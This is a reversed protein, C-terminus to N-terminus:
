AGEKFVVWKGAIWEIGKPSFKCDIFAHGNAEGGSVYFRKAELHQAYATWSGSLKYMVGTDRLFERFERENAKLMKAVERFTKNGTSEIFRDVFEVKPAQAELQFAQDAALQLAQAMTQPLLPQNSSELEQWRDVLVATFEPSIQAVVIYSNRKNVLYITLPKGGGEQPEVLPTISIVGKDCLREMTRKVSDHRSNVVVAIERSSMTLVKSNILKNM